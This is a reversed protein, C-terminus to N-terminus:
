PELPVCPEGGSSAPLSAAAPLQPRAEVIEYGLVYTLWTKARMHVLAMRPLARAGWCTM